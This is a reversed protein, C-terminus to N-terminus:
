PPTPVGTWGTPASVGWLHHVYLRISRSYDHDEFPIYVFGYQSWYSDDFLDGNDREIPDLTVGHSNKLIWCGDKGYHTRCFESDNDWGVIVFCHGWDSSCNALPGNCVLDKKVGPVDDAGSHDAHDEIRWRRADWAEGTDNCAGDCSRPSACDSNRGCSDVCHGESDCCSGSSYPFCVNDVIGNDRIAGLGDRYTGGTCDGWADTCGSVLMQESLIPLNWTNSDDVPNSFDAPVWGNTLEILAKAEV